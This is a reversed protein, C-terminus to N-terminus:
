AAAVLRPPEDSLRAFGAADSTLRALVHELYTRVDNRRAPDVMLERRLVLSIPLGQLQEAGVITLPRLPTAAVHTWRLGFALSDDSDCAHAAVDDYTYKLTARDSLSEVGLALRALTMFSKLHVPRGHGVLQITGPQGGIQAWNTLRGALIDGLQAPTVILHSRSPSAFAFLRESMTPIVVADVPAGIAGHHVLASLSDDALGAKLEEQGYSFGICPPEIHMPTSTIPLGMFSDEFGRIESIFKDAEIKSQRYM